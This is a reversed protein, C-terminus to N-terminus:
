ILLYIIDQLRSLNAPAISKIFAKFVTIYTILFYMNDVTAMITVKIYQYPINMNAMAPYISLGYM